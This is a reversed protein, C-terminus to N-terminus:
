KQTKWEIGNIYRDTATGTGHLKKKIVIAGQLKIKYLYKRLQSDKLGFSDLKHQASKFRALVIVEYM